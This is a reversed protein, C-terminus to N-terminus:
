DERLPVSPLPNKHAGGVLQSVFSCPCTLYKPVRLPTVGRAKFCTEGSLM